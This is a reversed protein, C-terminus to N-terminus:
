SSDHFAMGVSFLPIESTSDYVKHETKKRKLMDDGDDDEELGVVYDSDSSTSEDEGGKIRKGEVVKSKGAISNSGQVIKRFVPLKQPRHFVHAGEPAALMEEVEGRCEELNKEEEACQSEQQQAWQHEGQEAAWDSPEPSPEKPIKAYLDIIGVDTVHKVMQLVSEEDNMVVLAGRGKLHFKWYLTTGNLVEDSCSVHDALHKKLEQLCLKDCEITSMGSRGNLYKWESGDHHLEGRFHFRVSLYDLPTM